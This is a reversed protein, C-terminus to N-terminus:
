IDYANKYSNTEEFLKEQEEAQKREEKERKTIHHTQYKTGLFEYIAYNEGKETRTIIDYGENRLVNIIAGLRLIRYKLTAELQSLPGINKIHNLVKEKQTM